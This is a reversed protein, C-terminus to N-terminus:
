HLPPSDTRLLDAIEQGIAQWDVIMGPQGAENLTEIREDVKALAHERYKDVLFHAFDRLEASPDPRPM